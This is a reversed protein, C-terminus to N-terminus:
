TKPVGLRTLSILGGRHLDEGPYRLSEVHELAVQGATADLIQDEFETVSMPYIAPKEPKRTFVFNELFLLRGGPRAVRWMESLLSQRAPLPNHHMTTVSLVLDFSEDEYPFLLDSGLLDFRQDPFNTRTAEVLEERADIGVFRTEEPDFSSAWLGAGAGVELAHLPARVANEKSATTFWPELATAQTRHVAKNFGLEDGIGGIEQSSVSASPTHAHERRNHGLTTPYTPEAELETRIAGTVESPDSSAVPIRQSEAWRYKRRLEEWLTHNSTAIRDFLGLREFLATGFAAALSGADSGSPLAIIIPISWHGGTMVELPFSPLDLLILANAHNLARTLEHRRRDQEGLVVYDEPLDVDKAIRDVFRGAYIVPHKDTGTPADHM